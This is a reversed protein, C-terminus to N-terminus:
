RLDADDGWPSPPGLRRLAAFYDRDAVMECVGPHLFAEYNVEMQDTQGGCQWCEGPEPVTVFGCDARIDDDVPAGGTM